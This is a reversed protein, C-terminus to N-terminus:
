ISNEEEPTILIEDLTATPNKEARKLNTLLEPFLEKFTVITQKGKYPNAWSIIQSNINPHWRNQTRAVQAINRMMSHASVVSVSMAERESYAVKVAKDMFTDCHKLVPEFAYGSLNAEKEYALGLTIYYSNEIADTIQPTNETRNPEQALYKRYISLSVYSKERITLEKEINFGMFQEALHSPVIFVPFDTIDLKTGALYRHQGDIIVYKNKFSPHDTVILPTLFGIKEISSIIRNIHYESAPRTHQSIELNQSHVIGFRIENNKYPEHFVTADLQSM